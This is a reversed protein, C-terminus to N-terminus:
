ENQGMWKRVKAWASSIVWGTMDTEPGIEVVIGGKDGIGIGLAKYISDADRSDRIVWVSVGSSEEDIIQVCAGSFEQQLDDKSASPFVVLFCKTSVTSKSM